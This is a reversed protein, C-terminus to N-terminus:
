FPLPVLANEGQYFPCGSSITLKCLMELAGLFYGNLVLGEVRRSDSWKDVSTIKFLYMLAACYVNLGRCVHVHGVTTNSHIQYRGSRNQVSSCQINSSLGASHYTNDHAYM